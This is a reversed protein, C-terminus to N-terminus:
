TELMWGFRREWFDEDPAKKSRAYTKKDRIRRELTDRAENLAHSAGYGEGSAIYLGSDTYLRIRALVLPTGRRKERHEHLHVKADILNMGHDRDDFRDIMAAVEEYTTDDLLDAGYIQVARDGEVEWTLADLLDTKTLIGYPRGNETVVLSSGGIEFMRQAATELTETPRITRVPSAMVNRVPLDLVRALEGERAGFGGRRGRGSSASVDGGFSDTGGGEGGQSRNMSRVTLDTVDYLSLIGVATDDEVVPLHTIRQERFRHLAEGVTSEPVITVLDATYGDAVTAADLFPQVKRLVADVTVVGALGEGDFVPLVRSDSDIMLQAVTRVDEDPALRPVHQVLSGIKQDPSHRSTTLQRRTVLGEFADGRVVVGKVAPDDFTGVLKSVPTEPTFEVYKTSVIDAIDMPMCANM